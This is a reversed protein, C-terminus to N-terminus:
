VRTVYFFFLATLFFLFSIPLLFALSNLQPLSPPSSPYTCYHSPPLWSNPQSYLFPGSPRFLQEPTMVWARGVAQSCHVLECVFVCVYPEVFVYSGVWACGSVSIREPKYLWNPLLPLSLSPPCLSPPFILLIDSVSLHLPLSPPSSSPPPPSFPSPPLPPLLRSFSLPLPPPPPPPSSISLPLAAFFQSSSLSHFHMTVSTPPLHSSEAAWWCWLSGFKLQGTDLQITMAMAVCMCMKVNVATSQCLAIALSWHSSPWSRVLLMNGYCIQHSTEVDRGAPHGDAQERFWLANLKCPIGSNGLAEHSHSFFLILPLQQAFYGAVICFCALFWAVCLNALRWEQRIQIERETESPGGGEGESAHLCLSSTDAEWSRQLAATWIHFWYDQGQGWSIPNCGCVDTPPYICGCM